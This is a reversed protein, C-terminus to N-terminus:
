KEGYVAAMKRIRTEIEERLWAPSLVEATDGFSLVWPIFEASSGATMTLIIGGGSNHEITQDASWEREAAYTATSKDFRVSTVFPADSILGFAASDNVNIEPLHKSTRKTLAAKRTRHLLLNTPKSHLVRAAGEKSVVWGSIRISEHYAALCKPAFDFDKAAQEISSQYSVSCVRKERIATTMATLMDQFPTYDIRGKSLSKGAPNFSAGGKEDSVFASAQQLTLEVSRKISDPLLHIIFDRCLALQYLGEANL